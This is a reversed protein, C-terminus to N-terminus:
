ISYQIESAKVSVQALSTILSSKCVESTSFLEWNFYHSGAFDQCMNTGNNSKKGSAVAMKVIPDHLSLNYM